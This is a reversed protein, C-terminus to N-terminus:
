KDDSETSDKRYLGTLPTHWQSQAIEEGHEESVATQLGQWSASHVVNAYHVSLGAACGFLLLLCLAKQVSNPAWLLVAMICLGPVLWQQVPQGMSCEHFALLGAGLSLAPGLSIASVIKPGDPMVARTTVWWTTSITMLVLVGVHIWPTM